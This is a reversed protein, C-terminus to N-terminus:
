NFLKYLPTYIGPWRCLESLAIAVPRALFGSRPRSKPLLGGAVSRPLINGDVPVFGTPRDGGVEPRSRRGRGGAEVKAM